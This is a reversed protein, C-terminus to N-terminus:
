KDSKKSPKPTQEPELDVAPTATPAESEEVDFKVAQGCHILERAAWDSVEVTSGVDVHEGDIRISKLIRLKM